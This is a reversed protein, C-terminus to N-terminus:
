IVCQSKFSRYGIQVLMGIILMITLRLSINTLLAGQRPLDLAVILSNPAPKQKERLYQFHAHV